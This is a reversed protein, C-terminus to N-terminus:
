ASHPWGKVVFDTGFTRDVGAFHRLTVTKVLVGDPARVLGGAAPIFNDWDNDDATAANWTVYVVGLLNSTSQVYAGHVAASFTYTAATDTALTTTGTADVMECQADRGYQLPM